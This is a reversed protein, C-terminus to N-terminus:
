TRTLWWRPDHALQDRRRVAWSPTALLALSQATVRRPGRGRGHRLADAALRRATGTDGRRAADYALFMLRRCEVIALGDRIAADEGPHVAEAEAARLVELEQEAHRLARNSLSSERLRYVVTPHDPRAVVAGNRVLRIWLDWDEPGRFRHRLGGARAYDDVSFLTGSFVYNRRYLEGLQAPPAPIPVQDAFTRRGVASGPIWRIVDATALGGGAREYTARMADLHDPLWYDDADLWAVLPTRALRIAHDRAAAPGRSTPFREVELPLAGSWRKAVDATTDGSGDDVVIVAAAPLTQAVVSSLAADLTDEADHAPVIVTIDDFTM